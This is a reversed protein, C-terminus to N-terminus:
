NCIGEEQIPETTEVEPEGHKLYDLIIGIIPRNKRSLVTLNKKAPKLSVLNIPITMDVPVKCMSRTKVPM